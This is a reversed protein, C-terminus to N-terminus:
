RSQWEANKMINSEATGVKACFSRRGSTNIPYELKCASPIGSLFSGFLKKLLLKRLRRVVSCPRSPSTISYGIAEEKIPSVPLIENLRLCLDASTVPPDLESFM